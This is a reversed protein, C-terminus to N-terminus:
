ELQGNGDALSVIRINFRSVQKNPTPPSFVIRYPFPPWLHNYLQLNREPYPHLKNMLDRSNGPFYVM